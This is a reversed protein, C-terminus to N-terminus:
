KKGKFYEEIAELWRPENAYAKKYGEWLKPLTDAEKTYTALDATIKQHEAKTLIIAPGEAANGLGFDRMKAVELLHHAQYDGSLGKTFREMVSYPGIVGKEMLAHTIDVGFKEMLIDAAEKSLEQVGKLVMPLNKDIADRFRKEFLNAQSTYITALMVAGAAAQLNPDNPGDPNKGGPIGYEKGDARHLDENFQLTGMAGALALDQALKDRFAETRTKPKKECTECVVKMPTPFRNLKLTPLQHNKEDKASALLGAEEPTPLTRKKLPFRHVKEVPPLQPDDEQAPLQGEGRKRAKAELEAQINAAKLEDDLKAQEEPTLPKKKGTGTGDGQGEGKGAGEGAGSGEKKGEKSGEKGSGGSGAGKADPKSGTERPPPAACKLLNDPPELLKTNEPPAYADYVFTKYGATRKKFQEITVKVPIKGGGGYSWQNTDGNLWSPKVCVRVANPDVVEKEEGAWASQSAICIPLAVVCVRLNSALRSIFRV